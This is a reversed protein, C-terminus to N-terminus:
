IFGLKGLSERFEGIPPAVIELDEGGPLCGSVKHLHLGYKNVLPARLSIECHVQIQNPVSTRPEFEVLTLRENDCYRLVRWHTISPVGDPSPVSNELPVNVIGSTHGGAVRGSVLGWYKCRWFKGERIMTRALKGASQHLSFLAVGSVNAEMSTVPIPQTGTLGMSDFLKSVSSCPQKGGSLSLGIPKNIGVYDKSRFLLYQARAEKIARGGFSM